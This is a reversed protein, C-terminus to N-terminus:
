PIREAPISVGDGASQGERSQHGDLWGIEEAAAAEARTVIRRYCALVEEGFPTLASGGGRSGGKAGTVVPADFQGNLAMVLSWARQYSMGLQRGAAAISGTERIAALLDAKGPGLPM